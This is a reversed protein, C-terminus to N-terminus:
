RSLRKLLERMHPNDRLYKMRPDNEIFNMDMLIVANMAAPDNLIAQMEPDNQLAGILDMVEKEETMKERLKDIRVNEGSKDQDPFTVSSTETVCGSVCFFGLIILVVSIQYRM